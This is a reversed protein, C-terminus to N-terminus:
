RCDVGFKGDKSWIREWRWSEDRAGSWFGAFLEELKKRDRDAVRVGPGGIVPCDLLEQGPNLAGTILVKFVNFRNRHGGVDFGELALGCRGRDFLVHGSDPHQKGPKGFLSHEGHVRGPFDLGLPKRPGFAFRRREDIAFNLLKEVRDLGGRV